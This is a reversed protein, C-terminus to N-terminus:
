NDLRGCHLSSQLFAGNTCPQYPGLPIASIPFRYLPGLSYHVSFFFLALHFRLQCKKYNELLKAIVATPPQTLKKRQARNTLLSFFFRRQAGFREDALLFSSHPIGLVRRRPLSNSCTPQLPVRDLIFQFDVCSSLTRQPILTEPLSHSGPTSHM